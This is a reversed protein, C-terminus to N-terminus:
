FSFVKWAREKRQKERKKIEHIFPAFADPPLSEKM